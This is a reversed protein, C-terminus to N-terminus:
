ALVEGTQANVAWALRAGYIAVLLALLEDPEGPGVSGGGPHPPDGYTESLTFRLSAMYRWMM